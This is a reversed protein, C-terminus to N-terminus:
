AELLNSDETIRFARSLGLVRANPRDLLKQAASRVIPLMYERAKSVFRPGDIELWGGRGTIVHREIFLGFFRELIPRADTEGRLIASQTVAGLHLELIGCEPGHAARDVEILRATTFGDFAEDNEAAHVVAEAAARGLRTARSFDDGDM